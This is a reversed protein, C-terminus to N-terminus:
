GMAAWRWAASATYRDDDDSVRHHSDPNRSYLGVDLLPQIENCKNCVGGRVLWDDGPPAFPSSPHAHRWPLALRRCPFARQGSGSGGHVFRRVIAPVLGGPIDVDSPVAM